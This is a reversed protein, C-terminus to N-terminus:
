VRMVKRYGWDFVFRPLLNSMLLGVREAWPGVSQRLPPRRSEALRQVARAATQPTCGQAEDAAMGDLACRAREAYPSHPKLGYVQRHQDFHTQFNGPALATVYVGFPEM